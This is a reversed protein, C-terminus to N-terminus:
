QDNETREDKNTIYLSEVIIIWLKKIIIFTSFHKTKKELKMNTENETRNWAHHKSTIM